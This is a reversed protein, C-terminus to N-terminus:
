EYLKNRNSGQWAGTIALAAKYQTKEIREMLSPLSISQDFPNHSPPIHYIVDGYDFHPRAFMKYIQDLTKIPLYTSLNKIIGIVNNATKIKENIHDVFTLKSNFILGLHKRCKVKSVLSGNFFLPPHQPDNKKHSYFRLLRNQPEPNFSM